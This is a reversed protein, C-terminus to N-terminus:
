LLNEKKLNARIKEIGYRFRAKATPIPVDMIEAIEQFSLNSHLRYRITESQEFPLLGLLRNIIVFEEDFNEPQLSIIDFHSSDISLTNAKSNERLVTNCENSVMKYFYARLNTVDKFQKQNSLVKVYLNQLVDEVDRLDSLRYSAYQFLKEKEAELIPLIHEINKTM